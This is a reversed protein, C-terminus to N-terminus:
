TKGYVVLNRYRMTTNYMQRLGIRGFNLLPGNNASADDVVDFVTKQDISGHLRHGSKVFRLRYWRNQELRPICGYHLRWHWPNKSLYQTEVDRRMMEVRRMYEWHYNVTKGLITGMSGTKEVGRELIFDERQPGRCCVVLLSLGTPSELRFDYEIWQDGEFIRPSWLYMRSETDIMRPTAALLGEQTARLEFQDRLKDGTQFVWEDLEKQRNFGCAYTEKWSSDQKLNLPPRELIDVAQRIDEDARDNGAPRKERYRALVEGEELVAEEITLERMIMMPNGLYLEESPEAFGGASDYYGMMRGNVYLRLKQAPRDWTLVVFYWSGRRLTLREAYVFPALGYDLHAMIHGTTPTFKGVLQPYGGTWYVGFSMKGIQQAPFVDSVLPFSEAGPVLQSMGPTTPFFDLDELPSFWFSM